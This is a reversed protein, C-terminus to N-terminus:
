RREHIDYFSWSSAGAFKEDRIDAIFTERIVFVSRQLKLLCGSRVLHILTTSTEIKPLLWASFTWAPDTNTSGTRRCSQHLSQSDHLSASDSILSTRLSPDCNREM